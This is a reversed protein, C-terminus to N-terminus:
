KWAPLPGDASAGEPVRIALLSTYVGWERAVYSEFETSNRKNMAPADAEQELIAKASEDAYFSYVNEGSQWRAAIVTEHDGIGDPINRVGIENNGYDKVIKIERAM